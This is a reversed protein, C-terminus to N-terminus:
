RRTRSSSLENNGRKVKKRRKTFSVLVIDEFGNHRIKRALGPTFDACGRWKGKGKPRKKIRWKKKYMAGYPGRDLVVGVGLKKTRPSWAFVTAGLPLTRHAIGVDTPRVERGLYRSKGGAYRDNPQAFITSKCTEVKIDISNTALWFNTVLWIILAM